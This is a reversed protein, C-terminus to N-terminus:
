VTYYIVVNLYKLCFMLILVGESNKCDATFTLALDSNFVFLYNLCQYVSIPEKTWLTKKFYALHTDQGCICMCMCTVSCCCSICM